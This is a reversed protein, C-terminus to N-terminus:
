KKAHKDITSEIWAHAAGWADTERCGDCRKTLPKSNCLCPLDTSFADEHAPDPIKGTCAGCRCELSSLEHAQLEADIYAAIGSLGEAVTKSWRMAKRKSM